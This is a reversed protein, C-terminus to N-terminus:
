KKSINGERDITLVFDDTVDFLKNLYNQAKQLKSVTDNGLTISLSMNVYGKAYWNLSRSFSCSNETVETSGKPLYRLSVALSSNRRNFCSGFSYSNEIEIEEGMKSWGDEIDQNSFLYHKNGKEDKYIYYVTSDRTFDSDSIRVKKSKGVADVYTLEPSAYKLLDDSMRFLYDIKFSFEPRYSVMGKKYASLCLNKDRQQLVCQANLVIAKNEVTETEQRNGKPLVFLNKDIKQMNECAILFEYNAYEANNPKFTIELTDGGYCSAVPKGVVVTISNLFNVEKGSSVNYVKFTGEVTKTEINDKSTNDGISSEDGSSSGAHAEKKQPEVYDPDTECSSFIAVSAMM